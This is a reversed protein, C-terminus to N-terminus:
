IPIIGSSLDRFYDEMASMALATPSLFLRRADLPDSRREVLGESELTSIWRLATTTPVNSAISLSTVSVRQQDLEAACLCLLMDWAPEAFLKAPFHRSRDLRAQLIERLAAPTFGLPATGSAASRYQARGILNALRAAHAQLDTLEKLVLQDTRTPKADRQDALGEGSPGGSVRVIGAESM